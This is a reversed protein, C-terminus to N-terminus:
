RWDKKVINLEVVSHNLIRLNRWILLYPTHWKPLLIKMASKKIVRNTKETLYIKNM